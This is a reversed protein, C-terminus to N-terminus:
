AFNRTEKIQPSKSKQTNKYKTNYADSRSCLQLESCIEALPILKVKCGDLNIKTHLQSIPGIKTFITGKNTKRIIKSFKSIKRTTETRACIHAYITKSQKTQHEHNYAYM